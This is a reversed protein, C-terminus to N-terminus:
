TMLVTATSTARVALRYAAGAIVDAFGDGNIDGAGSVSFGSRDNPEIGDLRFGNAGNLTGLGITNM